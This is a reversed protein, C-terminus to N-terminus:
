RDDGRPQQGRSQQGSEQQLIQTDLTLVQPQGDREVTVTVQTADGLSRFVEMGRAPDDLATGNIEIVLDGPKLGLAAFQQRKRGPYVRYGRQRGDVFVPQPRIIDTLRAPNKALTERISRARSPQASARRVPARRFSNDALEKPLTLQMPEGRVLVVVKDRYVSRLQRGRPLADGVKYVKEEGNEESIIALGEDPSVDAIIGRLTLETDEVLDELDEPPPAERDTVTQQGFLAMQNIDKISIPTEAVQDSVPASGVTVSATPTVDHPVLLWTLRALQWGLAIVLVVTLWPPLVESARAVMQEPPLHRFGAIKNALDMIWPILRYGTSQHERPTKQGATALAQDAWLVTERM